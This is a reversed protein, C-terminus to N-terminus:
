RLLKQSSVWFVDMHKTYSALLVLTTVETNVCEEEFREFLFGKHVPILVGSFTMMVGEVAFPRELITQVPSM